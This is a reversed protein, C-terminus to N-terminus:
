QSTSRIANPRLSKELSSHSLTSSNALYPPFLVEPATKDVGEQAISANFLSSFIFLDMTLWDGGSVGAIEGGKKGTAVFLM